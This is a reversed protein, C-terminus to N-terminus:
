DQGDKEEKHPSASEILDRLEDFMEKDATIRGVDLAFHQFQDDTWVEIRATRLHEHQGAWYEEVTEIVKIMVSGYNM